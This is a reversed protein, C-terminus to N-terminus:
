FMRTSTGQHLWVDTFISLMLLLVINRHWKRFAFYSNTYINYTYLILAHICFIHRTVPIFCHTIYSSKSVMFGWTTSANNNEEPTSLWVPTGAQIVLWHVTWLCCEAVLCCRLSVSVLLVGLWLAYFRCFLLMDRLCM